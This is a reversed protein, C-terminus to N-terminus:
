PNRIVSEVVGAGAPQLDSSVSPAAVPLEVTFTTGREPASDVLIRGGHARVLQQSVALGMGTGRKKTTFFLTFLKEQVEPPIPPGTNHIAISATGDDCTTALDVTGGGRVAQFANRLINFLVQGLRERDGPVRPLDPAYHERIEVGQNAADYRCLELTDRALENLDVPDITRPEPHGVTLLEQCIRNIREISDLIHECYARHPADAPLGDRIMEVLGSMAGLPNRIEHAVGTAMTGLLALNEARRMVQEAHKQEALNKFTLVIGLPRGVEDRLPSISYGLQVARGGATRVTAEASSVRTAGLLASRISHLFDQNTPEQPVVHTIRRGAAQAAACGLITEAVSNFSTVVGQQDVTVVGGELSRLTYSDLMLSSVSSVVGRLASGLAGIETSREPARPPEGGARPLSEVWTTLARLPRAISRALLAAVALSVLTFGGIALFAEAVRVEAARTSASRGAVFFLPYSIWLGLFGSLMVLFTVVLPIAVTLRLRLGRPLRPPTASGHGPMQDVKLPGREPM